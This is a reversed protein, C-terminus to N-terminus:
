FITMKLILLIILHLPYFVYFLYKLNSKGKKGNYLMLIPITLLSFIQVASAMSYGGFIWKKLTLAFLILTALIYMIVKEDRAFYFVLILAVGYIGYNLTSILSLSVISIVLLTLILWFKAKRSNNKIEEITWILLSALVFTFMVNLNFYSVSLFSYALQSILGIILMTLIYKKRNRTYIMGQAIFFAFIPFTLRGIARLWIIDPFFQWGIHDVIMTIVAIIKLLNRNM